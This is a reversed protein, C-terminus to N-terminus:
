QCSCQEELWKEHFVEYIIHTKIFANIELQPPM